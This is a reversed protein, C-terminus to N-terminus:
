AAYMLLRAPLLAYEVLLKAISLGLGTGGFRRSISSDAQTFPQFLQSQTDASLGIGTDIVVFRMQGFRKDM